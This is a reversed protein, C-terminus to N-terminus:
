FLNLLIFFLLMMTFLAIFVKNPTDKIKSFYIFQLIFGIIFWCVYNYIPIDGGEWVWFQSKIAVPEMIIDFILMFTAALAIRMRKNQSIIMAYHAAGITLISWNVSIILPVGAIKVGLNTLYRYSGFLLGTNVGIFEAIFGVVGAFVLFLFTPTKPPKISLVIAIFSLCLTIPSLSLFTAKYAPMISGFFGVVYLISLIIIVLREKKIADIQM